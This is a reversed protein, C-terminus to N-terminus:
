LPMECIEFLTSINIVPADYDILEEKKRPFTLLPLFIIAASM